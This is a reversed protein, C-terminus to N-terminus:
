WVQRTGAGDCELNRAYVTYCKPIMECWGGEKDLHVLGYPDGNQGTQIGM